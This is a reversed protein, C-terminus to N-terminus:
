VLNTEDCLIKICNNHLAATIVAQGYQKVDDLNEDRGSATVLSTDNEMKMTYQISM